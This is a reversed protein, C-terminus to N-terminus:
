KFQSNITNIEFKSSSSSFSVNNDKRKIQPINIKSNKNNHNEVVTNNKKRVTNFITHLNENVKNKFWEIIPASSDSDRLDGFITITYSAM